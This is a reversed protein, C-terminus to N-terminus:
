KKKLKMSLFSVFGKLEMEESNDLKKHQIKYIKEIIFKHSNM